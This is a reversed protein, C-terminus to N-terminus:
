SNFKILSKLKLGTEFNILKKIITCHCVLSERLKEEDIM